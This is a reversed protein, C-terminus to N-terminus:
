GFFVLWIALFFFLLKHRYELRQLIKSAEHPQAERVSHM